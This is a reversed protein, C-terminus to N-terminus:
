EGGGKERRAGCDSRRRLAGRGNSIGGSDSGIGRDPDVDLVVGVGVDLDRGHDQAEVVLPAGEEGLRRDVALLLADDGRIRGRGEARDVARRVPL